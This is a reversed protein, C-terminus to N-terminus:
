VRQGTKGVAAGEPGQQVLGDLGACQEAPVDGDEHDIDVVEGLDVVGEPMVDAVLEQPLQALTKVRRNAGRARDGAESAVLEADEEGVEAARQLARLQGLAEEVIRLLG